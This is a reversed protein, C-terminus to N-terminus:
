GEVRTNDQTPRTKPNEKKSCITIAICGLNTKKHEVVKFRKELISFLQQESKFKFLHAGRWRRGMSRTWLWWIIRFLTTELPIIVLLLGKEKLLKDAVGLVREPNNVHELTEMLVITGYLRNLIEPPPDEISGLYVKDLRERASEVMEPNIDVGHIEVSDGFIMRVRVGDGCGLDLIPESIEHKKVMSKAAKVIERHWYKSPFRTTSIEYYSKM